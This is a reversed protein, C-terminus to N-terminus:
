KLSNLYKLHLFIDDIIHLLTVQLSALQLVKHELEVFDRSHLCSMDQRIIAHYHNSINVAITRSIKM